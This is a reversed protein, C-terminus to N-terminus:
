QIRKFLPREYETDAIESFHHEYFKLQEDTIMDNEIYNNIGMMVITSCTFLVFDNETDDIMDDIMKNLRDIMKEDSM